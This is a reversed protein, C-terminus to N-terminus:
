IADTVQKQLRVFSQFICATIFKVRQQIYMNALTTLPTVLSLANVVHATYRQNIHCANSESRHSEHKHEYLNMHVYM